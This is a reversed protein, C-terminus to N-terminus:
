HPIWVQEFTVDLEVDVVEVVVVVVDAGVVVVVVEAGVVVVVVEAGVVVVVVVVVGGVVVVVVVVVVVDGVVVVEVDGVVVVEAVELELVLVDFVVEEDPDELEEDVLELVLVHGAHGHVVIEEPVLSNLM